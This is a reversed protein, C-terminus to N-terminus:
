QRDYPEFGAPTFKGRVGDSDRTYTGYGSETYTEAVDAGDDGKDGAADDDANQAEGRELERVDADTLEHGLDHREKTTLEREDM